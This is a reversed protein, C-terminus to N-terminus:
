HAHWPTDTKVMANLITLFKRMCITIAVKPIKGAGVLRAHFQGIVPSHQIVSMTAMYPVSRVEARGGRIRRKGHAQGSGKDSPALGVPAAIQRRDPSGLGSRNAPPWLTLVPGTGPPQAAAEGERAVRAKSSGDTRVSTPSGSGTSLGDPTSM